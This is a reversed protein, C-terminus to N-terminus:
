DRSTPPESESGLALVRTKIEAFLQPPLFGYDYRGSRGPAPYLDFGPWTFENLDAVVVWARQWDLGLHRKVKLPIEIGDSPPNPASHTIPAVTVLDRGNEIRTTVVIACPRRKRGHERGAQKEHRWLFEYHIVLGPQPVPLPM